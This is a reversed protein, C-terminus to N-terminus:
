AEALSRKAVQQGALPITITFESGENPESKVQLQIDNKECQQLVFRMGLGHGTHKTTQGKGHMLSEVTFRDMGIGTDRISLCLSAGDQKVDICVRDNESRNPKAAIAEVGNKILNRLILFLSGTYEEFPLEADEVSCTLEVKVGQSRFFKLVLLNLDSFVSNLSVTQLSEGVGGLVIRNIRKIHHISRDIREGVKADIQSRARVSSLDLITILNALEHSIFRAQEGLAADKEMRAVRRDMEAKEIEQTVRQTMETSWRREVMEFAWAVAGLTFSVLLFESVRLNQPIFYLLAVGIVWLYILVLKRYRAFLDLQAGVSFAIFVCVVVVPSPDITWALISTLGCSFMWRFADVADSRMSRGSIRWRGVMKTLVGNLAASLILLSLVVMEKTNLPFFTAYFLICVPLMIQLTLKQTHKKQAAEISALDPLQEKISQRLEM